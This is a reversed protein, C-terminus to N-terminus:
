VDLELEEPDFWLADFDWFVSEAFQVQVRRVATIPGREAINRVRGALVQGNNFRSAWDVTTRVPNGVSFEVSPLVPKEVPKPTGEVEVLHISGGDDIYFYGEEESGGWDTTPESWLIEELTGGNDRDQEDRADQYNWFAQAQSNRGEYIWVKTAMVSMRM